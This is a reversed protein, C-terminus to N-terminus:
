AAVTFIIRESGALVMRLPISRAATSTRALRLANGRAGPMRCKSKIPTNAKVAPPPVAIAAPMSM